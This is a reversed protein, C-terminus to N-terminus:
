LYNGFAGDLTGSAIVWLNSKSNVHFRGYSPSLEKTNGPASKAITRRETIKGHKIQMYELSVTMPENPFYKDRLFGYQHPRKIYLIHSTGSADIYLDLNTIHGGTKEVSDIELPKSFPTKEIDPSYTYFLRRFVYDWKRNLKEYKLKQWQKNPEVIDGIALVHAARDRLAVQPYCSRVPFEIKGKEEWKGSSDKFSVFQESSRANISLLLLM